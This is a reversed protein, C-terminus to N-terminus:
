IVTLKQGQCQGAVVETKIECCQLLGASENYASAAGLGDSAHSPQALGARPKTVIVNQWHLLSKLEREFKTSKVSIVPNWTEKHSASREKAHMSRLNRM